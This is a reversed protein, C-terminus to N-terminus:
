PGAGRLAEGLGGHRLVLDHRGLALSEFRPTLTAGSGTQATAGTGLQWSADSAEGDVVVASFSTGALAAASGSVSAVRDITTAGATLTITPLDATEVGGSAALTFVYVQEEGPIRVQEGAPGVLETFTARMSEGARAAFWGTTASDDRRTGDPLVWSVTAGAPLETVSDTLTAKAEVVASPLSILAYGAANADVGVTQAEGDVIAVVEIVTPNVPTRGFEIVAEGQLGTPRRSRSSCTACRCRCTM